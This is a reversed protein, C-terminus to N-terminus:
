TQEGPPTIDRMRAERKERRREIWKAVLWYGVGFSVVWLGGLFGASIM